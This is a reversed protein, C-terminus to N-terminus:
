GLTNYYNNQKRQREIDKNHTLAFLHSAPLYAYSKFGVPKEHVKGQWKIDPKNKYLRWQYDPWNVLGDETVRWGWNQIDEDTLGEVRNERPVAYIEVDPNKELIAKINQLFVETPYEDADIQYIYDGTCLSNLHNKWDAFNGTFKGGCTKVQPMNLEHVFDSFNVKTEDVLIIIEDGQAIVPSLVSLLKQLEKWEGCYPIAYSIKM